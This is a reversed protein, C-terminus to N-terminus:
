DHSPSDKIQRAVSECIMRTWHSAHYHTDRGIKAIDLPHCGTDACIDDWVERMTKEIIIPLADAMRGIEINVAERVRGEEGALRERAATLEAILAPLANVAAVILAANAQAEVFGDNAGYRRLVDCAAIFQDDGKVRIGYPHEWPRQTAREQLATLQPLDVPATMRAGIPVSRPMDSFQEHLSACDACPKRDTFASRVERKGCPHHFVALNM